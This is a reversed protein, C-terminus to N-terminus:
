RPRWTCTTAGAKTCCPPVPNCRERSMWWPRCSTSISWAPRRWIKRRPGPPPSVPPSSREWLVCKRGPWRTICRHSSDPSSRCRASVKCSPSIPRPSSDALRMSPHSSRSSGRMRWRAESLRLKWLGPFSLIRPSSVGDMCIVLTKRAHCAPAWGKRDRWRSRTEDFRISLAIIGPASVRDFVRPPAQGHREVHNISTCAPASGRSGALGAM